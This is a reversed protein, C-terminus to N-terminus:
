RRFGLFGLGVYNFGGNQLLFLVQFQLDVLGLTAQPAYLHFFTLTDLVEARTKSIEARQRPRHNCKDYCNDQADATSYHPPMVDTM